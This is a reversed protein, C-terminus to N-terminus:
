FLHIRHSAGGVELGYDVCLRRIEIENTEHKVSNYSISKSVYRMADYRVFAHVCLAGRVMLLLLLYYLFM